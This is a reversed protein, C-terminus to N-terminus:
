IFYRRSLDKSNMVRFDNTRIWGGTVLNFFPLHLNAQGKQPLEYWKGDIWISSKSVDTVDFDAGVQRYIDEVIGKTPIGLAGTTIKFGQYETTSFRGGLREM